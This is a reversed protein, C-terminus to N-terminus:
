HTRRAVRQAKRKSQRETYSFAKDKKAALRRLGKAWTRLWKPHDTDTPDNSRAELKDANARM